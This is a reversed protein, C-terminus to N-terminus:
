VLTSLNSTAPSSPALHDVHNHNIHLYPSKLDISHVSQDSQKEFPGLGKAILSQEVKWIYCSWSFSYLIFILGLGMFATSIAAPILRFKLFLYIGLAILFVPIGAFFAGLALFRTSSSKKLFKYAREEGQPLKLMKAAFYSQISCVVVCCFNLTACFTALVIGSDLMNNYVQETIVANYHTPTNSEMLVVSQEDGQLQFILLVSLVSVIMALLSLIGLAAISKEIGFDKGLLTLRSVSLGSLKQINSKSTRSAGGSLDFMKNNDTPM